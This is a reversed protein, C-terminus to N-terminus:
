ASSACVAEGSSQINIALATCKARLRESDTYAALVELDDALDNPAIEEVGLRFSRSARWFAYTQKELSM